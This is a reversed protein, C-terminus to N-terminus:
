SLIHKNSIYLILGAIILLIVKGVHFIIEKRKSVVKSSLTLSPQSISEIELTTYQVKSDTKTQLSLYQNPIFKKSIESADWIRSTLSDEFYINQISINNNLIGSFNLRFNKIKSKSVINYNYINMSDYNFIVGKHTSSIDFNESLNARTIINCSVKNTSKAKIKITTRVFPENDLYMRIINQGNPGLLVQSKGPNKTLLIYDKFLEVKDFNSFRFDSYINSAKWVVTKGEFSFKIFKIKLSLKESSELEINIRGIKSKTFICIDNDKYNTGNLLTKYSTNSAFNQKPATYYIRSHLASDVTTSIQLDYRYSQNRDLYYDLKNLGKPSLIIFSQKSDDPVFINKSTNYKCNILRFENIFDYGSWVVTDKGQIIKINDVTIDQDNSYFEIKFIKLNGRFSIRYENLTPRLNLASQKKQNFNTDGITQYYVRISSSKPSKAKILIYNDVNDLNNSSPKNLKFRDSYIGHTKASTEIDFLELDNINLIFSFLTFLLIM